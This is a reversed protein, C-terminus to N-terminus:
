KYDFCVRWKQTYAVKKEEGTDPDVITTKMRKVRTWGFQKATQNRTTMKMLMYSNQEPKTLTSIDVGHKTFPGYLREQVYLKYQRGNEDFVLRLHTSAFTTPYNASMALDRNREEFHQAANATIAVKAVLYSPNPLRKGNTLLVPGDTLLFCLSGTGAELLPFGRRILYKGIEETADYYEHGKDNPSKPPPVISGLDQVDHYILMTPERLREIPEVSSSANSRSIRGTCQSGFAPQSGEPLFESAESPFDGYVSSVDLQAM